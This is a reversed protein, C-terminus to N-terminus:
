RNADGRYRPTEFHRYTLSRLQSHASSASTQAQKGRAFTFAFVRVRTMTPISSRAVRQSLYDDNPMSRRRPQCTAGENFMLNSYGSYVCIWACTCAHAHVRANAHWTPSKVYEVINMMSICLHTSNLDNMERTAQKSIFHTLLSYIPSV